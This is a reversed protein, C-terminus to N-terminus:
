LLWKLGTDFLSILLAAVVTWLFSEIRFGKILKDTIWLLIANIVIKFLGFTVLLLPLSVIFLLWGIAINVISYVLAVVLATTPKDIHVAPMLLAVLFIALSLIFFNLILEIM